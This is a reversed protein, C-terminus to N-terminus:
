GDFGAFSFLFALPVAMAKECCVGCLRRFRESEYGQLLPKLPSMELNTEYSVLLLSSQGSTDKEEISM